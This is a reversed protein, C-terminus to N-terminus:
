QSEVVLQAAVGAHDSPWLGGPTRTSPDAGFLAINQAQVSGLTLILDIRQYLQSVPNNVFQAQSATFGPAFPFIESWADNYGANIFDVYTPDQPFPFAQANSDMAVVLPQSTKAPQSQPDRLEAGQLERVTPDSSELHTNIFRFTRGNFTVDVSCWVRPLPVPGSPTTLSLINIFQGSQANSWQFKSLDLDTRALIVNEDIVQVWLFTSPPILGPTKPFNYQKVRAAVEYHGGQAVLADLLEQLMDFEVAGPGFTRTLPNFPGSSWQDVEQLSVLAPAAAIIQKAVAQMREPPNTARVQTITQGVAILFQTANTAQSIEIFDTGEDVNYTMVRLDGNGMSLSQAHAALDTWGQVVAFVLAAVALYKRRAKLNPARNTNPDWEEAYNALAEGRLGRGWAPDGYTGGDAFTAVIADADRGNWNDFCHQAVQLANM